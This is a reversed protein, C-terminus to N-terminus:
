KNQLSWRKIVQYRPPREGTSAGALVFESVPWEIPSDLNFIHKQKAKRALTVHPKYPRTEPEFGCSVLGSQLSQVLSTLPASAESAGLCLIRPRPWYDVRDLYLTFPDIQIEDGGREICARQEPAVPGLFVLTMHLDDPHHQQGGHAPLEHVLRDLRSRLRHDPWLAFFLRQM